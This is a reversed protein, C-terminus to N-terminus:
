SVGYVYVTGGSFNVDSSFEISTIAASGVYVGQNMQTFYRPTGNQWAFATSDVMVCNTDTYRYFNIAATTTKDLAANSNFTYGAVVFKTTKAGYNNGSVSGTSGQAYNSGSDSNLIFRVENDASALYANKVLVFLNKYSGSISGITVTTGGSLTTTSLLTMGGGAAPAVWKL